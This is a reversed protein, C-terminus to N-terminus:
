LDAARGASSHRCNEPSFVRYHLNRSRTEGPQRRRDYAVCSEAPNKGDFRRSFAPKIRAGTISMSTARHDPRITPLSERRRVEIEDNASKSTRLAVVNGQDIKETIGFAAIRNEIM